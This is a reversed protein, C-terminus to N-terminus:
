WLGLTCKLAHQAAIEVYVERRGREHAAIAECLLRTRKRKHEIAARDIWRGLAGFAWRWPFTWALRAFSM